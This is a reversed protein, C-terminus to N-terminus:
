FIYNVEKKNNIQEETINTNNIKDKNNSKIDKKNFNKNSNNNEEEKKEVKLNLFQNIDIFDKASKGQSIINEETTTKGNGNSLLNKSLKNSSEILNNLKKEFKRKIVFVFFNIYSNSRKRGM